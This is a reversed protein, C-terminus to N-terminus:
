PENPLGYRHENTARIFVPANELKNWVCVFVDVASSAHVPEGSAFSNAKTVEALLCVTVVHVHDLRPMNADSRKFSCVVLKVTRDEPQTDSNVHLLPLWCPTVIGVERNSLVGMGALRYLRGARYSVLLHYLCQLCSDIIFVDTNSGPFLHWMDSHLLAGLGKLTGNRFMHTHCLVVVGAIQPVFLAGRRNSVKPKMSANLKRVEIAGLPPYILTIGPIPSFMM